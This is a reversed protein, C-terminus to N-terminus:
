AVRKPFRPVHHVVCTISAPLWEGVLTEDHCELDCRSRASAFQSCGIEVSIVQFLDGLHQFLQVGIIDDGPNIREDGVAFLVVQASGAASGVDAVWQAAAGIAEELEAAILGGVRWKKM